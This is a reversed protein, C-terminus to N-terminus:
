PSPALAHNRTSLAARHRTKRSVYTGRSQHQTAKAKAIAHGLTRRLRQAERLRSELRALFDGTDLKVFITQKADAM